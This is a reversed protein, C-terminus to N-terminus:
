SDNAQPRTGAEAGLSARKEVATMRKGKVVVVPMAAPTAQPQARPAARDPMFALGCAVLLAAAFVLEMHKLANM